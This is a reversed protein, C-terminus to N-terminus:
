SSKSSLSFFSVFGPIKDVVNFSSQLGSNVGEVVTQLEDRVGKFAEQIFGEAEQTLDMLLELSGHIALDLLCLFLSRYMDIM